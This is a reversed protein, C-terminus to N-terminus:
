LVISIYSFFFKNTLTDFVWVFKANVDLWGDAVPGTCNHFNLDM